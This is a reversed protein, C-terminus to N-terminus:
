LRLQTRLLGSLISENLANKLVNVNEQHKDTNDSDSYALSDTLFFSLLLSIFLIKKFKKFM